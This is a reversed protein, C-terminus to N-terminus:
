EVLEWVLGFHRSRVRCSVISYYEFLDLVTLLSTRKPAHNEEWRLIFQEEISSNAIAALVNDGSELPETWRHELQPRGLRV